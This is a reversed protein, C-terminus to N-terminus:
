GFFLGWITNGVSEFFNSQRPRFWSFPLDPSGVFPRLVWGMQAGVLAFIVAWCHFVTKVHRQLPHEPLRDLPAPVSPATTRAVHPALAATAEEILPPESEPSTDAATPETEPAAARATEVPAVDPARQPLAPPTVKTQSWVLRNLTQLLFIMGLLGAVSFAVVNLLSIFLYSTTTLGFFGVIPGLSALVALTVALDVILLRLVAAFKLRSGVLANFVYLSPFTVLLTLLFLLPVKVTSALMQQPNPEAHNALAYFGLCVGYTAGLATLVIVLREPRVRIVGDRLEAPQTAEGRLIRDLESFGARM